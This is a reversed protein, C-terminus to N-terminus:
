YRLTDRILDALSSAARIAPFYNRYADRLIQESTMGPATKLLRAIREVDLGYGELTAQGDTSLNWDEPELGSFRIEDLVESARAWQPVTMDPRQAIVNEDRAIRLAKELVGHRTFLHMIQEAEPIDAPIQMDARAQEVIPMLVDSFVESYVRARDENLRTTQFMTARPAGFKQTMGELYSGDAAKFVGTVFDWQDCLLKRALVSEATVKYSGDDNFKVASWVLSQINNPRAWNEIGRIDVYEILDLIEQHRTPGWTGIRSLLTRLGDFNSTVIPTPIAPVDIDHTARLIHDIAYEGLYSFMDSPSDFGLIVRTHEPASHGLSVLAEFRNIQDRTRLTVPRFLGSVPANSAALMTVIPDDTGFGHERIGAMEAIREPSIFFHNTRESTYEGQEAIRRPHSDAFELMDGTTFSVLTWWQEAQPNCHQCANDLNRLLAYSDHSGTEDRFIHAQYLRGQIDRYGKEPEVAGTKVADTFQQLFNGLTEHTTGMAEVMADVDPTIALREDSPTASDHHCGPAGVVESAPAPLRPDGLRDGYPSTM